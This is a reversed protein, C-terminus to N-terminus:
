DAGPVEMRVEIPKGTYGCTRPCVVSGQYRWPVGCEPCVEVMEEGFHGDEGFQRKQGNPLDTQASQTTQSDQATQTIQTIDRYNSRRGVRAPPDSLTSHASQTPQASQTTDADDEDLFIDEGDGAVWKGHSWRSILGGREMQGLQYKLRDRTLGTLLLLEATSKPAGIPQLASLIRRQLPPAFVQATAEDLVTWIARSPDFEIPLEVEEIDRGTVTLKGIRQVRAREVIWATDATGTKAASGSVTDFIDEAEAKRRHDVVMLVIHWKQALAQLPMLAELDQHYVSANEKPAKRFRELTDIVVMRAPHGDDTMWKCWADIMQIGLPGRAAEDANHFYLSEPWGGQEQLRGVRKKLRGKYDELAVYLVPGSDVVKKGLVRGDTSAVALAAQLALWSKGIKPKGALIVLGEPLLGLVVWHPEPIEMKQLQAASYIGALLNPHVRGNGNGTPAIPELPPADLAWKILDPVGRYKIFDDLSSPEGEPDASPVAPVVKVSAAFRKISRAQQHMKGLASEQDTLIVVHHGSLQQSLNKSWLGGGSVAPAGDEWLLDSTGNYQTVYVVSGQPLDVLREQGFLPIATQSPPSLASAAISPRHPLTAAPGDHAPNIEQHRARVRPRQDPPERKDSLPLIM